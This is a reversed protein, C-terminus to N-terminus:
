TKSADCKVASVFFMTEIVAHLREIFIALKHFTLVLDIRLEETVAPSLPMHRRM